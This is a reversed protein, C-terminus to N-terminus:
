DSNEDPNGPLSSLKAPDLLYDPRVNGLAAFITSKIDPDEEYISGLLARIKERKSDGALPCPNKVPAITAARAMQYIAKKELYALPRILALRCDFLDQRPMMTSLNGGYFMNIFFTEIIDEKHHGLAIKTFDKERAIEFLRTRRNRACYFCGSKGDEAEIAKSGITTKEILSPVGIKELQEIVPGVSAEDFGMDLHVALLEYDIPAKRRWFSLLRCLVLSDVGGSVAVLVRDSDELMNYDHM